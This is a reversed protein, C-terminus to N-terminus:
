FKIKKFRDIYVWKFFGNITAIDVVFLLYTTTLFQNVFNKLSFKMNLLYKNYSYTRILIFPILLFLFFNSIKIGLFILLIFLAYNRVIGYHWTRAFGSKIGGRSLNSFRNFIQNTNSPMEWNVIAKNNNKFQLNLSNIRNLFILDEVIYEGNKSEPFKIKNWIIKKFLISSVTPLVIGDYNDKSIIISAISKKFITNVIPKAAGYVIDIDNKSLFSEVLNELWFKDPFAGADILAILSNKAQNIGENRGSGRCRGKRNLTIINSYKSNLEKIINITNDTSGGDSIIIEDPKYTQEQLSNILLNISKEENYVPIIVSIKIM